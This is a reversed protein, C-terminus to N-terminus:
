LEEDISESLHQVFKSKSIVGALYALIFIVVISILAAIFVQWHASLPTTDIIKDSYKEITRFLQNFLYGVGVIPVLFLFGRLATHIFPNKM